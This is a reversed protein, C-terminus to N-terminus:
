IIFESLILKINENTKFERRLMAYQHIDVYDGNSYKAERFISEHYFNLKEFVKLMGKNLETTGSWIRNMNLNNFGHYLMVCLAKTAIGLGWYDSEGIIISFECSQNIWNINQLTCNGIHINNHIDIIAGCIIQNNGIADFFSDFEKRTKPTVGHDNYKTVKQDSFWNKYNTFIDTNSMLKKSIIFISDYIERTFPMIKINKNEYIKM